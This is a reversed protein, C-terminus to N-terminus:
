DSSEPAVKRVLKQNRGDSITANLTPRAAAKMAASEAPPSRQSARQGCTKPASAVASTAVAMGKTLEMAGPSFATSQARRDLDIKLAYLRAFQTSHFPAALM